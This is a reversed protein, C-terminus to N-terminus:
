YIITRLNSCLCVNHSFYNIVEYSCEPHFSFFFMQILINMHLYVNWFHKIFYTVFLAYFLKIWIFNLALLFDRQINHLPAETLQSTYFSDEWFTSLNNLFCYQVCIKSNFSKQFVGWPLYFLKGGFIDM